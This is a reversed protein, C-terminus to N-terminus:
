GVHSRDYRNRHGPRQTWRSTWRNPLRVWRRFGPRAGDRGTQIAGLSFPNGVGAFSEIAEPPMADVQEMPYGLIQALPRGHHFHFTLDPSEALETYKLQVEKRLNQVDPSVQTAM